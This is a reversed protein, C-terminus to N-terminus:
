RKENKDKKRGLLLLIVMGSSLVLMFYLKKTDYKIVEKEEETEEIIEEGVEIGSKCYVEEIEPYNWIGLSSSIALKQKECLNTLYKYDGTVYNVQGYGKEILTNQLLVDDVYIWLQTRNYKDLEQAEDDYEVEILKATTLTKCIFSDIEKNLKGDEKDYALLVVRKDEGNINLWINSSSTCNVLTASVRVPEVNEIPEEEAYVNTNILLLCILLLIKKM